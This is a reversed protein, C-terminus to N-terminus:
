LDSPADPRPLPEVAEYLADLAAHADDRHVGAVGTRQGVRLARRVPCGVAALIARLDERTMEGCDPQQQLEALLTDLHIGPADGIIGVVTGLVQEERTLGPEGEAEDAEADQDVPLAQWYGLILLVAIAGAGVWPWFTSLRFLSWCGFCLWGFRVARPWFGAHQWPWRWCRGGIQITGNLARVVGRQFTNM